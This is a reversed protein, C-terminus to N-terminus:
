ARSALYNELAKRNIKFLMFGNTGDDDGPDPIAMVLDSYERISPVLPTPDALRM